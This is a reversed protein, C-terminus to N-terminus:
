CVLCRSHCCVHCSHAGSVDGYSQPCLPPRRAAVSTHVILHPHRPLGCIDQRSDCCIDQRSVCRIRTQQRLLHRAQLCLLYRTQLRLLKTKQLCSFPRPWAVLSLRRCTWPPPFDLAAPLRLRRSTWPVTFDLAAPLGLRCSTM